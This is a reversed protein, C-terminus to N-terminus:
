IDHINPFYKKKFQSYRRGGRLGDITLPIGIGMIGLINGVTVQSALADKTFFPVRLENFHSFWGWNVM